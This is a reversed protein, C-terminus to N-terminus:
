VVVIILFRVGKTCAIISETDRKGERGGSLRSASSSPIGEVAMRSIERSLSSCCALMTLHSQSGILRAISDGRTREMM